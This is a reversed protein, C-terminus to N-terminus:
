PRNALLRHRPSSEFRSVRLPFRDIALDNRVWDRAKKVRQLETTRKDPSSASTGKRRARALNLALFKLMTTKGAGNASEM